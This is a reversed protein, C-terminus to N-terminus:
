IEIREKEKYEEVTEKKDALKDLEEKLMLNEGTVKLIECCFQKVDDSEYAASNL